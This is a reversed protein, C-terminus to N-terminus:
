RKEGEAAAELAPALWRDPRLGSPVRDWRTCAVAALAAPWVWLVSWLADTGIIRRGVWVSPIASALGAAEILGALQAVKAPHLGLALGAEGPVAFGQWVETHRALVEEPTWVQQPAEAMVHWDRAADRAIGDGATRSLLRGVDRALFTEGPRMAGLLARGNQGAPRVWVAVYVHSSYTSLLTASGCRAACRLAQAGPLAALEALLRGRLPLAPRATGTEQEAPEVM